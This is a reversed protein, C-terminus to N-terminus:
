PPVRFARFQRESKPLDKCEKGNLERSGDDSLLLLDSNSTDNVLCIGEPNIGSFNIGSVPQPISSSGKWFFLRSSAEGNAPGAILYYGNAVSEMGRLGLGGLDLTITDGFRPPQGSLIDNPNLLPVILARSKPIPNRFGILLAGEPTAALAEINLGGDKKPSLKAAEGLRFRALKPERALDDILNTYFKGVPQVLIEANSRTIELAFLRCREPSPEGKSDRGHSTIWFVRQGLRAAAEIDMEPSKKKGSLLSNLNEIHIPKGPQSWRYFRLLNDEDNAVAFLDDTVSVAASADCTETFVFPQGLKAAHATISILLGLCVLLRIM